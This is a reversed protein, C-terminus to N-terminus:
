LGATDFSISSVGATGSLERQLDAPRPRDAALTWGGSLTVKVDGDAAAVAFSAHSPAATEATM